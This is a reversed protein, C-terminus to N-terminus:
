GSLCESYYSIERQELYSSNEGLDNIEYVKREVWNDCEDKVHGSYEIFTSDYGNIVKILEGKSDYKYEKLNVQVLRESDWTFKATLSYGYKEPSKIVEPLKDAKLGVGSYIAIIRNDGGYIFLAKSGGGWPYKQFEVYSGEYYQFGYVGQEDAQMLNGQQVRSKWKAIKLDGRSNFTTPKMESWSNEGKKVPYIIKSWRGDDLPYEAEYPDVGRSNFAILPSQASLVDVNGALKSIYGNKTALIHAAREDRFVEVGVETTEVWESINKIEVKRVRGKLGLKELTFVVNNPYRGKVEPLVVGGACACVFGVLFLVFLVRM